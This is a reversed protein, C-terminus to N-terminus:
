PTDSSNKILRMDGSKLAAIETVTGTMGKERAYKEASGKFKESMQELFELTMIYTPEGGQIIIDAERRLYRSVERQAVACNIGLQSLYILNGEDILGGRSRAANLGQEFAKKIHYREEELEFDIENFDKIGRAKMISEYQIQYNALKRIAGSINGRVVELSCALEMIDLEILRAKLPCEETLLDKKKLEIEVEKKLCKIHAEKLAERTKNMEALIQRLNRYDSNHSVTLMNDMFQSQTKNFLSTARVIEPLGKDVIDLMMRHEPMAEVLVSLTNRDAVTLEDM